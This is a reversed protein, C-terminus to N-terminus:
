FDDLKTQIQKKAPRLESAKMKMFAMTNIVIEMM